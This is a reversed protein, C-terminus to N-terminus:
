DHNAGRAAASLVFTSPKDTILEEISLTGLASKVEALYAGSALRAVEFWGDVHTLVPAPDSADGPFM